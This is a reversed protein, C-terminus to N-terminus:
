TAGVGFRRRRLTIVIANNPGGPFGAPIGHLLGRHLYDREVSQVDSIVLLVVQSSGLLDAGHVM